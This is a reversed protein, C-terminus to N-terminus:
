TCIKINDYLAPVGKNTRKICRCTEESVVAISRQVTSKTKLGEDMFLGVTFLRLEFFVGVFQLFLRITIFFLYTVV